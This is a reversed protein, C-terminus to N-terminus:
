DMRYLIILSDNSLFGLVYICLRCYCLAHKDNSTSQFEYKFMMNCMYLRCILKDTHKIRSLPSTASVLTWVALGGEAGGRCLKKKIFICYVLPGITRYVSM